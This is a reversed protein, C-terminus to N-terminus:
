FSPFVCVLLDLLCSACLKLYCCENIPLTEWLPRFQVVCILICLAKLLKDGTSSLLLLLLLLLFSAPALWCYVCLLGSSSWPHIILVPYLTPPPTENKGILAAWQRMFAFHGLKQYPSVDCIVWWAQSDSCFFGYTREYLMRGKLGAGRAGM